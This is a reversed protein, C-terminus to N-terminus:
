YEFNKNADRCPLNFKNILYLSIIFTIFDAFPVTIWIGNIGFIKPLIVIGLLIFILGRSLAIIISEKAYGIATFYSSYIVNFGNLIFAFAYLKSGQIALDIVYKDSSVFLTVLNEGFFFLALFTAICIIFSIKLSLKLISKVREFNKAGYNYSIISTIGDAVGFVILMGFQSVYNISTFAAVGSEGAIKMFATNFLYASVVTALASM